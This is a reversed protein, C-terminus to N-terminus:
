DHKIWFTIFTGAALNNLGGTSETQPTTTSSVPSSNSYQWWPNSGGERFKYTHTHAKIEGATTSGPTGSVLAGGPGVGPISNGGWPSGASSILAALLPYTVYNIIQAGASLQIYGGPPVTNWPWAIITGVQVKVAAFAAFTTTVTSSLATDAASRAGAESNIAAIRLTAEAAVLGAMDTRATNINDSLTTVKRSLSDSIASESLMARGAEDNILKSLNADANGRNTVETTNATAANSVINYLTGATIRCQVTAGVPFSSALTGEAGRGLGPVPNVILSGPGSSTTKGPASLGVIEIIGAYEITVLAYDSGSIAPFSSVDAVDISTTISNIGSPNSLLTKANNVFFQSGPYTIFTGASVGSLTITM